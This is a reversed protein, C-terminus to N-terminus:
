PLPRVPRADYRRLHYVRHVGRAGYWGGLAAALLALFASIFATWLVAATRNSAKNAADKAEARAASIQPSLGQLAASSQQPGMATDADLLQNATSDSAPTNVLLAAVIASADDRAGQRDNGILRVVHGHLVGVADTSQATKALTSSSNGQMGPTGQMAAGFGLALWLATTTLSLGWVTVGHMSGMTDDARGDFWSAFMGGIFLAVVWTVVMWIVSGIGIGTLNGGAEHADFANFGIALGALYLLGAMGTAVLWGAFIASWALRPHTQPALAGPEEVVYAM